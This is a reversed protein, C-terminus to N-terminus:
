GRGAVLFLTAANGSDGGGGGQPDPVGRQAREGIGVTGGFGYGLAEDSSIDKVDIYNPV